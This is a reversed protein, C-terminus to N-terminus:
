SQMHILASAKPGGIYHPMPLLAEMQTPANTNPGMHLSINANSSDNTTPVNANSQAPNSMGESQTVM